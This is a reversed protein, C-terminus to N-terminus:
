KYTATITPQHDKDFDKDLLKTTGDSAMVLIHTIHATKKTHTYTFTGSTHDLCDKGHNTDCKIELSGGKIIIDDGAAPVPRNVLAFVGLALACIAALAVILLRFNRM